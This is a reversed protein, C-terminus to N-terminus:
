HDAAPQTVARDVVLQGDANPALSALMDWRTAGTAFHIRWHGGDTPELGEVRSSAAVTQDGALQADTTALVLGSGLKPGTAARLAQEARTGGTNLLAVYADAFRRAARKAAEGGSADPPSAHETATTAAAKTHTTVTPDKIGCGDAGISVAIAAALVTLRRAPLLPTEM